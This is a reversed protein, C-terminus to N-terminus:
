LRVTRLPSSRLLAHCSRLAYQCKQRDGNDGIEDLTQSHLESSPSIGHRFQEARSGADALHFCGMGTISKAVELPKQREFRIAPIHMFRHLIPVVIEHQQINLTRLQEQSSVDGSGNIQRVAPDVLPVQGGVRGISQEDRIATRVAVTGIARGHIQGAESSLYLLHDAPDFAPLVIAEIERPIPSTM